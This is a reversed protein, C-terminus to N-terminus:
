WHHISAAERVCVCVCVQPSAVAAKQKAQVVEIPTSSSLMQGFTNSDGIFGATTM